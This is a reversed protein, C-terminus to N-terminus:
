YLGTESELKRPAVFRLVGLPCQSYASCGVIRPLQGRLVESYVERAPIGITMDTMESVNHARDSGCVMNALSFGTM